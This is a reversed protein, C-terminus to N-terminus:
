AYKVSLALIRQAQRLHPLDLMRGNLGVTGAGPRAEFAEVVARAHDIEEASPTFAAHIADLQAPHIALKGSFGDRRARACSRALGEADRFDTYATDIAQVGASAAAMLCLTRTHVYPAAYGGDAERNASAGLAASMDEPGWSLGNVRAHLHQYSAANLVAQPTEFAVLAVQTQGPRIDHACELAELYRALHEAQAAHEAKPLVIGDPRGPLVACLDQLAHATDLANIRVWRQSASLPGQDLLARVKRRAEAKHAESVADELDFILADAQLSAAKGLMKDSDGPVFLWSRIM